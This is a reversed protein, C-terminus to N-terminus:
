RSASKEGGPPRKLATEPDLAVEGRKLAFFLPASNEKEGTPSTQAQIKAFETGRAVTEGVKLDGAEVNGYYSLLGDRHELIVTQGYGERRGSFRVTGDM